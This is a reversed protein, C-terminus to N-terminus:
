GWSRCELASGIERTERDVARDAWEDRGSTITVRLMAHGSSRVVIGVAELGWIDGANGVTLTLVVRRRLARVLLGDSGVGIHHSLSTVLDLSDVGLLARAPEGVVVGLRLKEVVREGLHLLLVHNVGEAELESM